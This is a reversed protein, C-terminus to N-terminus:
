EHFGASPTALRRLTQFSDLQRSCVTHAEVRRMPARDEPGSFEMFPAACRPAELDHRVPDLVQTTNNRPLRRYMIHLGM